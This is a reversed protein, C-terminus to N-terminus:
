RRERGIQVLPMARPHCENRLQVLTDYYCCRGTAGAAQQEPKPWERCVTPRADYVSCRRTEANLFTCCKGGTFADDKRRLVVSGPQGLVAAFYFSATVELTLGLKKAIRQGDERSVSIGDYVTCCIGPCQECDYLPQTM